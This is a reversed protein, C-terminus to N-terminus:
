GWWPPPSRSEWVDNVLEYPPPPEPHTANGGALESVIFRTGKPFNRYDTETTAEKVAATTNHHYGHNTQHAGHYWPVLNILEDGSVPGSEASLWLPIVHHAQYSAVMIAVAAAQGATTAPNGPQPQAVGAPPPSSSQEPEPTVIRQWEGSAFRFYPGEEVNNVVRMCLDRVGAKNLRLNRASSTTQLPRSDDATNYLKPLNNADQYAVYAAYVEDFTVPARTGQQHKTFEAQAPPQGSPYMLRSLKSQNKEKDDTREEGHKILVLGQYLQASGYLGKRPLSMPDPFRMPILGRKVFAKTAHDWVIAKAQGAVDSKAKLQALAAAFKPDDRPGALIQKLKAETFQVAPGQGAQAGAQPAAAGPATPASPSPTATPNPL